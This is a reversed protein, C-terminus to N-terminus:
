IVKGLADAVLQPQVRTRLQLERQQRVVGDLGAGDFGIGPRHAAHELSRQGRRRPQSGLQGALM